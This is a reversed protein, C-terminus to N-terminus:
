AIELNPLMRARRLGVASLLFALEAEGVNSVDM